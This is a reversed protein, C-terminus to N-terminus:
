AHSIVHDPLQRIAPIQYSFALSNNKQDAKEDAPLFSRIYDVKVQSPNVDVKLYGANPLIQGSKYSDRNFAQYTSDAPLPCTQYIVGDLEQKAFLHDHGQFFINVGHKVMLQHIPMGWTPRKQAFEQIGRRNKGGWEYLSAIEVGGRLTGLVHHCFVFKWKAKSESLTKALWQYQTEGLSLQWLDRQEPSGPAPPGTKPGGDQKKGKAEGPKQGYDKNGPGSSGIAPMPSHWYPDLVVFLADGWTWAYYDRALGVFPTEESDGQYFFDPVPLPYHSVRARGALVAPNRETGDLWHRSAQDHNGNILFLPATEGIIGLFSRQHAYVQNVSSQHLTKSEIEHDLSFDDGMLIHFDPKIQAISGLTISYLGPDYMIGQREPHSDGQISFTFAEGSRRATSFQGSAEKVWPENPQARRLLQYHYTQGTQLSALEKELPVNPQALGLAFKHTTDGPATGFEVQVEVATASLVSLAISNSTPRGWILSLSAKPGFPKPGRGRGPGEEGIKKRRPSVEQAKALGILIFWCSIFSLFTRRPYKM